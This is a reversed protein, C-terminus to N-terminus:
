VFAIRRAPWLWWDTGCSETYFFGLHIAPPVATGHFRIQVPLLGCVRRGIVRRWVAGRRGGIPSGLRALYISAIKPAIEEPNSSAAAKRPITLLARCDRRCVATLRLSSCHKYRKGMGTALFARPAENTRSKGKCVVSGM